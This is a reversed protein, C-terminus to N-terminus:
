PCQLDGKSLHFHLKYKLGKCTNKPKWMCPKISTVHMNINPMHVFLIYVNTNVKNIQM